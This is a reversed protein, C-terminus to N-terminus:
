ARHDKRHQDANPCTAFHSRYRPPDGILTAGPDAHVAIPTAGPSPYVLTLNGDDVPDADVPM